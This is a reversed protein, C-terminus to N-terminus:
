SLTEEYVRRVEVSHLQRFGDATMLFYSGGSELMRVIKEVTELNIGLRPDNVLVEGTTTEIKIVKKAGWLKFEDRDLATEIPAAFDLLGSAITRAIGYVNQLGANKLVHYYAPSAPGVYGCICMEGLRPLDKDVGSGPKLSGDHIVITGVDRPGLIADVAVIYPEGHKNKIQSMMEILNLANVDFGLSGYVPLGFGGELLMTGVLPGVSDGVSSTSGVCVVVIDRLDVGTAIQKITHSVKAVAESDKHDVFTNRTEKRSRLYILADKIISSM